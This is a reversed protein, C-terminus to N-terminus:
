NLSRIRAVCDSLGPLLARRCEGLHRLILGASMGIDVVVEDFMEFTDCTTM